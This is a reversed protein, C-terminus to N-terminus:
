EGGEADDARAGVAGRRRLVWWLPLAGLAFAIAGSSWSVAQATIQIPKAEDPRGPLQYVDPDDQLVYIFALGGLEDVGYTRARAVGGAKLKAVRDNAKAVQADRDDWSLADAPCAKVCAPAQGQATREACLTCKQVVGKTEDFGVAGFPCAAVCYREGICRGDDIVTLQGDKHMAGTPCVAVCPATACHMCQTKAFFWQLAGDREHETFRVVTWTRGSGARRNQYSGPLMAAPAEAPLENWQKCAVMCARCGICKSTDVLVAKTAM